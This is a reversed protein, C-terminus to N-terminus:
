RGRKPTLIDKVKQSLVKPLMSEYPGGILWPKAEKVEARVAPRRAEDKMDKKLIERILM